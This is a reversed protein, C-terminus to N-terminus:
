SEGMSEVLSKFLSEFHFGCFALPMENTHLSVSDM